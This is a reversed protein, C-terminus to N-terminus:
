NQKKSRSKEVCMEDNRNDGLTGCTLFRQELTNNALKLCLKACPAM